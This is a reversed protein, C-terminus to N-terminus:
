NTMSIIKRAENEMKGKDNMEKTQLDIFKQKQDHHILQCLELIIVYEICGKLAQILFFM